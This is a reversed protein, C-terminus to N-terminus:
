QKHGDGLLAQKVAAVVDDVTYRKGLLIEVVQASGVAAELASKDITTLVGGLQSLSRTKGSLRPFNWNAEYPRPIDYIIVGPRHEQVFAVLDM